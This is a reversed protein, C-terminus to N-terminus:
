ESLELVLLETYLIYFHPANRFLKCFVNMEPPIDTSGYNIELFKTDTFCWLVFIKFLYFQKSHIILFIKLYVFVDYNGKYIWIHSFATPGHPPRCGCHGGTQNRVKYKCHSKLAWFFTASSLNIYWISSIARQCLFSKCWTFGKLDDLTSNVELVSLARDTTCM